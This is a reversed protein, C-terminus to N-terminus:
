NATDKTTFLPEFARHEVETTMGIGTDTVEFCVYDAPMSAGPACARRVNGTIRLTGGDPMADCANVCVNLLVQEIGTAPAEIKPLGPELEVKLEVGPPLTRELLRTTKQLALGADVVESAATQLRSFRLLERTLETARLGARQIDAAAEQLEPSRLEAALEESCALVVTLLNNFDHAASGALAGVAEGRQCERLQAELSRQEILSELRRASEHELAGLVRRTEAESEQLRRVLRLLGATVAASIGAYMVLVRLWNSPHRLDFINGPPHQWGHAFGYGALAAAVLTAAWLLWAISRPLFLAALLVVLAAAVFGNPLLFGVAFLNAAFGLVTGGLVLVRRVVAPLARVWTGVSVCLWSPLLYISHSEAGALEGPLQFVIGAGVM